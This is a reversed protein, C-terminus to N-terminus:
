RFNFFFRLLIPMLISLSIAILCVISLKKLIAIEKKLNGIEGQMKKEASTIAEQQNTIITSSANGIETLTNKEASNICEQQRTTIAVSQKGLEDLISKEVRNINEKNCTTIQDASSDIWSRVRSFSHSTEKFAEDIANFHESISDATKTTYEHLSTLENIVSERLSKLNDFLNDFLNKQDSQISQLASTMSAREEKIAASLGDIKAILAKNLEDYKCIIVELEHQLNTFSSLHENVSTTLHSLIEEQTKKQSDSVDSLTNNFQSQMEQSVSQFEALVAAIREIEVTAKQNFKAISDDIDSNLHQSSENVSDSIAKACQKCSADFTSLIGSAANKLSDIEDNIKSFASDMKEKLTNDISSVNDKVATYVNKLESSVTAFEVNLAQLQVQAEEYANVTNTVQQRASEVNQLSQELKNLSKLIDQADM